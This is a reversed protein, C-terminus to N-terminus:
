SAFEDSQERRGHGAAAPRVGAVAPEPQFKTEQGGDAPVHAVFVAVPPGQPRRLDPPRARERGSRGAANEAAGVARVSCVREEVGAAPQGADAPVASQRGVVRDRRCRNDRRQVQTRPQQPLLELPPHTGSLIAAVEPHRDAVARPQVREETHREQPM